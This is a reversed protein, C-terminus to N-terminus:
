FHVFLYIIERFRYCFSLGSFTWLLIMTSLHTALKLLLRDLTQHLKFWNNNRKVLKIPAKVIYENAESKHVNTNV